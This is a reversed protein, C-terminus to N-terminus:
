DKQVSCNKWSDRLYPPIPVARKKVKKPKTVVAELVRANRLINVAMLRDIKTHM